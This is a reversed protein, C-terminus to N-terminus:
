PASQDTIGGGNVRILFSFVGASKSHVVCKYDWGIPGNGCAVRKWSPEDARLIEATRTASIKTSFCGALYLTGLVLVLVLAVAVAPQILNTRRDSTMLRTM